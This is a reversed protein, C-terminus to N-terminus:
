GCGEMRWWRSDGGVAGDGMTGRGRESGASGERFWIEEADVTTRAGETTARDWCRMVRAQVDLYSEGGPIRINVFDAMWADLEERPLEDWVKM